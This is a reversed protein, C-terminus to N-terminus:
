KNIALLFEQYGLEPIGLYNVKQIPIDTIPIKKDRGKFKIKGIVIGRKM